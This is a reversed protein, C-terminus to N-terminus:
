QRFTQLMARVDRVCKGFSPARGRAVDLDFTAAFAPQDTVESYRRTMLRSLAEKAGRIAEPDAPAAADAGVGRQGRLSEIAALFWAEVERAALVVSIQLDPRRARARKLLEPGLLCPADDDADLVVAIGGVGGLNRAALEVAREIEGPRVLKDRSIRLPSLITVEHVNAEACLRRLIAPVSRVEGHGEVIPAIRV